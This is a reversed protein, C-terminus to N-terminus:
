GAGHGRLGARTRLPDGGTAARGGRLVHCHADVRRQVIQLRLMRLGRHQPLRYPATYVRQRREDSNWNVGPSRDAVIIAHKTSPLNKNGGQREDRHHEGRANGDSVFRVVVVVGGVDLARVAAVTGEEYELCSAYGRLVRGGRRDLDRRDTRQFEVEFNRVHDWTVDGRDQMGPAARGAGPKWASRRVDVGSRAPRTPAGAM